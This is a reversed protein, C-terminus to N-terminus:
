QEAVRIRFPLAVPQESRVAVPGLEDVRRMHQMTECPAVHHAEAEAAGAAHLRHHALGRANEQATAEKIRPEIRRALYEDIEILAIVEVLIAVDRAANGGRARDGALRDRAIHRPLVARRWFKAAEGIEAFGAELHRVEEDDIGLTELRQALGRRVVLHEAAARWMRRGCQLLRGRFHLRM